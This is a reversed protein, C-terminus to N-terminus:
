IGEATMGSLRALPKDPVGLRRIGGFSSFADGHTAQLM